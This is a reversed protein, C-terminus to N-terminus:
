GFFFFFAPHCFYSLLTSPKCTHRALTLFVKWNQEAISGTFVKSHLNFNFIEIKEYANPRKSNLQCLVLWLENFAELCSNKTELYLISILFCWIMVVEIVVDLEYSFIIPTPPEWWFILYNEVLVNECLNEAFSVILLISVSVYLYIHTQM